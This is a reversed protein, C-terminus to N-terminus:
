DYTDNIYDDFSTGCGCCCVFWAVANFGTSIIGCFGGCDDDQFTAQAQADSMTNKPVNVKVNGNKQAEEERKTMPRTLM